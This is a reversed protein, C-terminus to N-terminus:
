WQLLSHDKLEWTSNPKGGTSSGMMKKLLTSTWPSPRMSQSRQQTAAPSYDRYNQRDETSTVNLNGIPAVDQVTCQLTYQHGEFMPGSHNLFSLHVNKPPKYFDVTFKVTVNGAANQVLCLYQGGDMSTVSKIDLTSGNYPSRSASPLTWTYSPSPNGESSCNLHLPSGATVNINDPHSSGKLEPKYYVTATISQSSVVPPSQLGEAGLDLKAECWYLDGDDKSPNINLTFTENVPTEVPKNKVNQQGLSTQGHYFTVTLNGIPPVEQVTCQLTYQHGMYM